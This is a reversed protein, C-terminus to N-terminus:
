IGKHLELFTKEQSETFEGKIYKMTAFVVRNEYNEKLIARINDYDNELSLRSYFLLENVLKILNLKKM